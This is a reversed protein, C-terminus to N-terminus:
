SNQILLYTKTYKYCFQKKILEIIIAAKKLNEKNINSEKFIM